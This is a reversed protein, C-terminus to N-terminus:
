LKVKLSVGYYYPVVFKYHYLSSETNNQKNKIRQMTNLFNNAFFSLKFRKGIEKSVKINASFYPSYRQPKFQYDYNNTVVMKTLDNFLTKDNKYAWLYKEKFPIETSMDEFSTYYLPYMGVFNNGEYISGRDPKPIYGERKDLEFSREGRPMDSLLQSYNVFTGEVKLSIILRLKPIHTKITANTSLERTKIGNAINNGGYYYGIYQYPQGNSMLQNEGLWDTEIQKNLSKYFYYKGDLRLSTKLPAFEKFELIWELGQRRIPSGNDSYKISNFVRKEKKELIEKPLHGTKDHVTITGNNDITYNRNKYPISVKALEHPSTLYYTFPKHYYSSKYSNTVLNNFYALSFSVGRTKGRIGIEWKKSRQWKLSKNATVENPKIHYAYYTTGDALTGPVFALRQTYSPRIYLMGFSPLKVSEGWGAYAKLDKFFGRNNNKFINYEFNFRPSIANVNDYKADKVFTYNHRIGAVLSISQQKKLPYTFTGEAFLALNNLYPETNYTHERWSPTHARNGYYKGKGKNGSGSFETGMLLHSSIKKFIFHKKLKLKASYNLPKKDVIKQQFWHGRKILQVPALPKGESYPEGVFYGEETGHFALEGGASSEDSQEEYKSNSYNFNSSFNIESLLKKHLLWSLAVGGRINFANEKTYNGKYNDPDEESNYGGINGGLTTSVSLPTNTQSFFIKSHNLGFANRIYSTYPSVIKGIAKTYDYSINLIGGKKGLAIGKSVAVSKQRPSVAIKSNFPSVGRKTKVKLLGSTLDGYEASPIGTIVEVKDINELSIIRSDIGTMYNSGSFSANNSLRIGDIEIATGFSPTGAENTNNSRLTIYATRSLLNSAKTHEGPLLSTIEALSSLQTHEIAESSITYASTINQSSQKATIVVDDLAFSKTRLVIEQKQSDKSLNFKLRSTEYGLCSISLKYQKAPLKFYFRGETNTFNWMETEHLEILAYPIPTNQEDVIIGSFTYLKSDQSYSYNTCITFLFIFACARFSFFQQTFNKLYSRLFRDESHLIIM